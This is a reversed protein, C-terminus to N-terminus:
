FFILTPGRPAHALTSPSVRQTPAIGVGATSTVLTWTPCPNCALAQPIPSVPTTHQPSPYEGAPSRFRGTGMRNAAVVGTRDATTSKGGGGSLVHDLRYRMLWPQWLAGTARGVQVAPNVPSVQDDSAGRAEVRRPVVTVMRSRSTTPGGASKPCALLSRCADNGVTVQSAVRMLEKGPVLERPHKRPWLCMASPSPGLERRMPSLVHVKWQTPSSDLSHQLVRANPWVTIAVPTRSPDSSM